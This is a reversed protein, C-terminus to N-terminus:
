NLGTLKLGMGQMLKIIAAAKSGSIAKGPLLRNLATLQAQTLRYTERRQLVAWPTQGSFGGATMGPIRIGASEILQRTKNLMTNSYKLGSDQQVNKIQEDLLKMEKKLRIAHMASSVAPSMVNEMKSQAGAPSSAGGKMYALMPNIGALKMDAVARQYATNSMREQFAMQQRSMAATQINAREQGILSLGGGIITPGMDRFFDGAGYRIGTPGTM